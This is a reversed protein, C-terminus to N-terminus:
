GAIVEKMWNVVDRAADVLPKAAEKYPRQVGYRYDYRNCGQLKGLAKSLEETRLAQIRANQNGWLVTVAHGDQEPFATERGGSRSREPRQGPAWPAPHGQARMRHGSTRM